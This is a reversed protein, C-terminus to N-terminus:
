KVAMWRPAVRLSERFADLVATPPTASYEKYPQLVWGGGASPGSRFAAEVLRTLGQALVNDAIRPPGFYMWPLLVAPPGGPAVESGAPTSGVSRGDSRITFGNILGLDAEIADCVDEMLETVWEWASEPAAPTTMTIITADAKPAPVVMFGAGWGPQGSRLAFEHQVLTTGGFLRPSGNRWAPESMDLPVLGHRSLVPLCRALRFAAEPKQLIGKLHIANLFSTPM